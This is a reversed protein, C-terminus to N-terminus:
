SIERRLKAVLAAGFSEFGDAAVVFARPGGTVHAAYYDPLSPQGPFRPYGDDIALANVRIGQAVAHDRAADPAEDDDTPLGDGSIDVVQEGAAFPADALLDAAFRIAGGIGTSGEFPRPARLLAQAIRAGDAAGRVETWPVLLRQSTGGAWEFYCLGICGLASDQIARIVRPDALAAAYGRRQLAFREDDISTSVDAALVLATSVPERAQAPLACACAGAAAALFGRRNVAHIAM